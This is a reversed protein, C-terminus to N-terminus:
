RSFVEKAIESAHDRMWNYTILMARVPYGNYKYEGKHPNALWRYYTMGHHISWSGPEVVFPMKSAYEHSSDAYVGTGFELFCVQTGNAIISYTHEGTKEYTVEVDPPIPSLNGWHYYQGAIVRGRRALEEVFEDIKREFNAKYANVDKLLQSLSKYSLTATLKM